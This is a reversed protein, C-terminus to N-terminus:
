KPTHYSEVPFQRGSTQQNKQSSSLISTSSEQQQESISKIIKSESSTIMERVAMLLDKQLTCMSQKVTKCDEAIQQFSRDREDTQKETARQLVDTIVTDINALLREELRKRMSSITTHADDDDTLSHMSRDGSKEHDQPLNHLYDLLTRHNIRTSYRVGRLLGDAFEKLYPCTQLFRDAADQCGEIDNIYGLLVHFLLNTTSCIDRSM